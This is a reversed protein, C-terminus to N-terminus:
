RVCSWTYSVRGQCTVGLTPNLEFHADFRLKDWTIGIGMCGVLQQRYYVGAKIVLLDIAQWELATAVRYTSRVDYDAQVAWRLNDIFRYDTGVSYIIPLVRNIGEEIHIKQWFPNFAHLGITLRSTIDVTAGIQPIFTGRYKLEDGCYVAIYNGQLGLSFRGFSRALTIGAMMEQYRSYGFFSFSVGVNLYPNCYAAQLSATNLAALMYRNEYQAAVQITHSEQVLSAPNHCATWTDTRPTQIDAITNSSPLIYVAQGYAAIAYCFLLYFSIYCYHKLTIIYYAFSIYRPIFIPM